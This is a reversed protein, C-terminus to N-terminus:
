HLGPAPVRLSPQLVGPHGHRGLSSPHRGRLGAGASHGAGHGGGAAVQRLDSVWLLAPSLPPPSVRCTLLGPASPERM